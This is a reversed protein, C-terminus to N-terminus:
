EEELISKLKALDKRNAKQMSSAMMPAFLRSFGKPNGANRLTMKTKDPRLSQWSYTTQMPFPGNATQMVMQENEKLETVEYTYALEKGLFRAKFVLLSGLQLPRESKWEISKINVYWKPANDPNSVYQAVKEVPVNIETETVVDVKM